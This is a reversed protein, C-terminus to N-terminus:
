DLLAGDGCVETCIVWCKDGVLGATPASQFVIAPEM